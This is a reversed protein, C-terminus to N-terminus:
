ENIASYGHLKTVDMDQSLGEIKGLTADLYHPYKCGEEFDRSYDKQLISDWEHEGMWSTTKYTTVSQYPTWQHHYRGRRVGQYVHRHTAKQYRHKNPPTHLHRQINRETAIKQFITHLSSVYVIILLYTM